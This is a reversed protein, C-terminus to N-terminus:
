RCRSIACSRITSTVLSSSLLGISQQSKELEFMERNLAAAQKKMEVKSAETTDKEPSSAFRKAALEILVNVNIPNSQTGGRSKKKPPPSSTSTDDQVVTETLPLPANLDGM